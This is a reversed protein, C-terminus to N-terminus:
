IAEGKGKMSHHLSRTCANLLGFILGVVFLIVTEEFPHHEGHAHFGAMHHTRNFVLMSRFWQCVLFSLGMAFFDIGTDKCQEHTREIGM